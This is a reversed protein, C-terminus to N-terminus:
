EELIRKIELYREILKATHKGKGELRSKANYYDNEPLELKSLLGKLWTERPCLPGLTIYIAYLVSFFFDKHIVHFDPMSYGMIVTAFKEPTTNTYAKGNCYSHLRYLKDPAINIVVKNLGARDLCEQIKDSWEFCKNIFDKVTELTFNLHRAKQFKQELINDDDTYILEFESYDLFIPGFPIPPLKNIDLGHKVDISMGLFMAYQIPFISIGDTYITGEKFLYQYNNKLSLGAANLDERFKAAERPSKQCLRSIDADMDILSSTVYYDIIRLILIAARRIMSNMDAGPTALKQPFDQMFEADSKIASITKDLYENIM